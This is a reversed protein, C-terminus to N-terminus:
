IQMKMQEKSFIIYNMIKLTNQYELSIAFLMTIGGDASATNTGTLTFIKDILVTDSPQINTKTLSLADSKDAYEILMKGSGISIKATSGENNFATFYAYTIVTFVFLISVITLIM